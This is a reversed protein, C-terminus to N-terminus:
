FRRAVPEIYSVALFLYAFGLARTRADRLARRVLAAFVSARARVPVANHTAAATTM